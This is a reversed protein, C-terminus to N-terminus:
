SNNANRAGENKFHLSSDEVIHYPSKPLKHLDSFYWKIKVKYTMHNTQLSLLYLKDLLILCHSTATHIQCTSTSGVKIRDYIYIALSSSGIGNHDM